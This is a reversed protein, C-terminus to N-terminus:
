GESRPKVFRDYLYGGLVYIFLMCTSSLLVTFSSTLLLLGSVDDTGSSPIPIHTHVYRSIGLSVDVFFSFVISIHLSIYRMTVDKRTPKGICLTFPPLLLATIASIGILINFSFPPIDFYPLFSRLVGVGYLLIGAFISNRVKM